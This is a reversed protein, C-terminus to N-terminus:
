EQGRLAPNIWYRPLPPRHNVAKVPEMFLWDEDILVMCATEVTERDPLASWHNRYVDKATFPSSVKGTEIKEALTAAAEREPSIVIGYIRRAHEELFDCWAAALIAAQKSVPGTATGDAIEILHFVLALTPM